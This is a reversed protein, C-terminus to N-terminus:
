KAQMIVSAPATFFVILALGVFSMRWMIQERYRKYELLGHRCQMGAGRNTRIGSVGSVTLVTQLQRFLGQKFAYRTQREHPKAHMGLGKALHHLNSMTSQLSQPDHSVAHTAFDELTHREVTSNHQQYYLLAAM